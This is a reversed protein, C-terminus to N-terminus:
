KKKPSKYVYSKRAKVAANPVDVTVKIKRPKEGPSDNRPYYGISYQRRLEDAIIQFTKTLNEPSDALFYRGGSHDALFKLYIGGRNYATKLDEGNATVVRRTVEVPTKSLTKERAADLTEYRITYILADLKRSRNLTERYTARSTTDVGDSFVVVAKRGRTTQLKEYVFDLADYVSTGGGQEMGEIEKKLLERDNTAETRQYVYKNFPILIVRDQAGLQEVFAVASKQIDAFSAATSESIDLLLAVTFPADTGEFFEIAQPAGDEFLRFNERTLHPIFRDERDRVGVPVTILNTEVRLIEEGDVIKEAGGRESKSSENKPPKKEEQANAACPYILLGFSLFVLAYFRRIM